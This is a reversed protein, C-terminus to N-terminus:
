ENLSTLKSCVSVGQKITDIFHFVPSFHFTGSISYTFSRIPAYVGKYSNLSM